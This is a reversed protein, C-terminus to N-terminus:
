IEESLRFLTEPDTLIGALTALQLRKVGEAHIQRTGFRFIGELDEYPLSAHFRRLPEENEPRALAQATSDKTGYHLRSILDAASTADRRARNIAEDYEPPTVNALKSFRVQDERSLPTDLMRVLFPAPTIAMSEAPVDFDGLKAGLYDRYIGYRGQLRLLRAVATRRNGSLVTGDGTTVPAGGYPTPNMQVVLSPDYKRADEDNATQVDERHNRSFGPDHRLADVDVVHYHADYRDGFLDVIQTPRGIM